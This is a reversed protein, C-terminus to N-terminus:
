VLAIKLSIIEILKEPRITAYYSIGEARHLLSKQTTQHKCSDKFIM